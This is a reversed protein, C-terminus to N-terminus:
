KENIKIKKWNNKIVNTNKKKKEKKKRKNKREKRPELQYNVFLINKEEYGLINKM